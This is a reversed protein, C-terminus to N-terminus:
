KPMKLPTYKVRTVKLKEGKDSKTAMSHGVSVPRTTWCVEGEKTMASTFCAKGDKMVATGHDVHKGRITEAIYKGDADISERLKGEKKDTFIWTTQNLQFAAHKATKAILPTSGASLALAAILCITFRM